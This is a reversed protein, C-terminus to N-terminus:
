PFRIAEEWLLDLVAQDRMLECDCAGGILLLIERMCLPEWIVSGRGSPLVNLSKKM